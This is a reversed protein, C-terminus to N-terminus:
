CLKVAAQIALLPFSKELNLLLKIMPNKKGSKDFGAYISIEREM